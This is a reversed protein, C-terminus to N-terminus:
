WGESDDLGTLVRNRRAKDLLETGSDLADQSTELPLPEVRVKTGDALDVEPPLKIVGGEVTGTYCM